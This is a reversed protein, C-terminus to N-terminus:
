KRFVLLLNNAPMVVREEFRLGQEEAAAKVESLHRIGWAPNRSKLSGDFALNSPATTVDDELFPGYLALAGGSSLVAGVGRMLGLCAQWPAIHIMNACYVADVSDVPWTDQCVDLAIAKQLLPAGAEAAWTDIGSLASADYESPQWRMESMASCFHAAHQGTGSAIELVSSDPQLVRQLIELIPDANRLPAGWTKKDTM